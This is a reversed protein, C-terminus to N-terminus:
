SAIVWVDVPTLDVVGLARRVVPSFALALMAEESGQRVDEVTEEVVFSALILYPDGVVREPESSRRAALACKGIEKLRESCGAGKGRAHRYYWSERDGRRWVRLDVEESCILCTAKEPADPGAKVEVGDAKARKM